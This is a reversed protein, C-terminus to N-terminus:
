LDNKRSVSGLVLIETAHQRIVPVRAGLVAVHTDVAFCGFEMFALSKQLPEGGSTVKM